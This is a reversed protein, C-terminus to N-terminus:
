RMPSDHDVQTAKWRNEVLDFHLTVQSVYQGTFTAYRGKGRVRFHAEASPPITLDKMVIEPGAIIDAEEIKAVKLLGNIQNRLATAGDAVHSLLREKDGAEAADVMDEVHLTITERETVVVFDILYVGGLLALSVAMIALVAVRRTQMLMVLLILQIVITLYLVPSPDEILWSM